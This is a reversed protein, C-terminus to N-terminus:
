PHDSGQRDRAADGGVPEPQPRVFVWEAETSAPGDYRYGGTDFGKLGDAEEIRHDIAYRAMM